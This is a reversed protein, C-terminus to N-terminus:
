LACFFRPLLAFILSNDGPTALLVGAHKNKEIFAAYEDDKIRHLGFSDPCVSESTIMTMKAWM